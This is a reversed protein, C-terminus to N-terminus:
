EKRLSLVRPERSAISRPTKLFHLLVILACILTLLVLIWIVRHKGRARGELSRYAKAAGMLEDVRCFVIEDGYKRKLEEKIELLDEVRPFHWLGVGVIIFLPRRESSDIYESIAEYAEKPDGMFRPVIWVKDDVYWLEEIFEPGFGFSFGEVDLLKSYLEFVAEDKKNHNSFAVVKLSCMGLYKQGRTLYEELYPFDSPRIRGGVHASYFYDNPTKTEYYYEVIGPCFDAVIPDLWWSIPVEGRRKDLWMEYYFDQMNNLGLDSAAFAIYIKDPDLDVDFKHEQVYESKAPMKSHFSFNPSFATALVNLLGHKSTLSVWPRELRSDEPYGLVISFKDMREYYESILSSHEEVSLGISCGKNAIVYDVVSVRYIAVDGGTPFLNILSRNCRPLVNELQWLHAEVKDKFKGRLDRKVEIGLKELLPIFDPHAVILNEIGALSVAINITAPLGPDYIVAGETSEKHKELAEEVSILGYGDIWGKERYYKLWRESATPKIRKSEWLVYLSPKQRNVIGQLSLVLLRTKLDTGRLDVVDVFREPASFSSVDVLSIGILLCLLLKRM